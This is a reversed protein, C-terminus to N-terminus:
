VEIKLFDEGIIVECDTGDNIQDFINEEDCVPYMHTLVIKKPKSLNAIKIIDSPTLHGHKKLRDPFSCEIILLDSASAFNVFSDTYDTDGSYVVTKKDSELKYALSNDTHLTKLYSLKFEDSIKEDFDFENIELCEPEIWDNYVLKLSNFFNKFGEPGWVYLPKTRVFTAPYKTAFLFPILDSNHDPHFHTIFIYDIDLYNVGVKELKWTTGNGCDFLINKSNVSVLYSSSGRRTSPICTGSGLLQIKM